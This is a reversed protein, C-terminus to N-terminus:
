KDALKTEFARLASDFSQLVQSLQTSVLLESAADSLIALDLAPMEPFQSDHSTRRQAHIALQAPRGVRQLHPPSPSTKASQALPTGHSPLRTQLRPISGLKAPPAVPSSMASEPGNGWPKSFPAPHRSSIPSQPVSQDSKAATQLPVLSPQSALGQSHTRLRNKQLSPVTPVGPSKTFAQPMSLNYEAGAGEQLTPISTTSQSHAALGHTPRAPGLGVNSRTRNLIPTSSSPLAHGQPAAPASPKRGAFHAMSVTPSSSITPVSATSITTPMPPHPTSMSTITSFSASTSLSPADPSGDEFLERLTSPAEGMSEFVLKEPDEEEGLDFDWISESEENLEYVDSDEVAGVLSDRRAKNRHQWQRYRVVLDRLVSTGVKAYQKVFKHKMLAAASPREAPNEDLCQAVVDKLLPTYSPGELRPPRDKSILLLARVAEQECYPPNGTAMEYVTIGCSWIDAKYDYATGEIVVEPAMWYPTGVLTTRKTRNVDTDAAVGFDCLRVNGEMTVLVNAAKIDRHIVGEHHMYSIAVLMERFVVSLYKEELPGPKLLTRISGGACLDMIIWLKTGVLFSEYYKIINSQPRKSLQALLAIERQVDEVEDHITDLSLVKIALVKNTETNRGKYVVGFNGRGIIEQRQYKKPGAAM